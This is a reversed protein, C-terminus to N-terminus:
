KVIIKDGMNKIRLGKNMINNEAWKMISGIANLQENDVIQEVSRLNIDEKNINITDLGITKIKIGKEGAKITGAKVVRNFAIDIKLNKDNIRKIIHGKSLNKLKKQLMKLRM